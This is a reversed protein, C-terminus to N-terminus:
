DPRVTRSPRSVRCSGGRSSPPRADVGSPLGHIVISVLRVVKEFTEGVCPPLGSRHAIAIEVGGRERRRRDQAEDLAPGVARRAVDARAEAFRDRLATSGLIGSGTKTRKALQIGTRPARRLTTQSRCRCDKWKM